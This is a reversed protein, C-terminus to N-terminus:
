TLARRAPPAFVNRSQEGLPVCHVRCYGRLFSARTSLRHLLRAFGCRFPNGGLLTLRALRRANGRILRDSQESVLERTVRPRAISAFWSLAAHSAVLDEMYGEYIRGVKEPFEVVRAAVRAAALASAVGTGSMWWIQGYSPGVLLWNAGHGRDHVFYSHRLSKVATEQPYAERYALGRRRFGEEVLRLIEQDSLDNASVEMSAGISVDLRLPICWALADLGDLDRYLRMISTSLQWAESQPVVEGSPAHYHAYVVRQPGSLLRCPVGAARGALRVHNTADFLYDPKFCTGDALRVEVFTDSGSDYRLDEVRVDVQECFPSEVVSRYLAADLGIRDVHFLATPSQYGLLRFPWRAKGIELDCSFVHEGFFGVVLKKSLCYPLFESLFDFIFVSAELSLSEGLRPSSDPPGGLLLHPMKARSLSRSILLGSLGSGIIVPRSRSSKMGDEM